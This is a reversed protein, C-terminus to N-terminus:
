SRSAVVRPAVAAREELVRILRSTMEHHTRLDPLMAAAEEPSYDEGADSDADGAEEMATLVRGMSRRCGSVNERLGGVAGAPIVRVGCVTLVHGVLAEAIRTGATPYIEILVGAIQSLWAVSMPRNQKDDAPVAWKSPTSDPIGFRDCFRSWAGPFGQKVASHIVAADNPLERALSPTM